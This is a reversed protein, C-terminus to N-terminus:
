FWHISERVEKATAADTWDELLQLAFQTATGPGRSTTIRGDVVVPKDKILDPMTEEICMHGTYKKGNLVNAKDLLWPAACIAAIPKESQDFKQILSIFSDNELLKMVAPGGPIVLADMDNINVDALLQDAVIGVNQKGTVQRSNGVAATVVNLGGRRLIDIPAMAEMEEVGNELPILINKIDKNM